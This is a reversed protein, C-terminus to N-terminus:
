NLLYKTLFIQARREADAAAFSDYKVMHGQRNIQNFGPTDFSHHVDPYIISEINKNVEMIFACSHPPTWTDAAGVLVLTPINASGHAASCFPYYAVAASILTNKYVDQKASTLVGGNSALNMAAIAGMSFGIVGIKGSHWPQSNIWKATEMLDELRDNHSVSAVGQKACASSVGRSRLSDPMVVNYGWDNLKNKWELYAGDIGSCGHMYVITPGSNKLKYVNILLKVQKIERDPLPNPTTYATTNTTGCASLNFVCFILLLSRLRYYDFTVMINM